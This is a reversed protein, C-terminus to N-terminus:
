AHPNEGKCRLRFGCKVCTKGKVQKYGCEPCMTFDQLPTIPSLGSVPRSEEFYGCERIVVRCGAHQLRDAYQRAEKLTTDRKIVIPAKTNLEEVTEGPVGLKSMKRKVGEKGELLGLFVVRYKKIM